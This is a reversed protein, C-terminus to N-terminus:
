RFGASVRYYVVDGRRDVVALILEKDSSIAAKLDRLLDNLGLPKGESVGIVLYKAPKKGYTGREYLLFDLGLGYGRRVVYGRDRLDRYILFRVWVDPDEAILRDAAEKLGLECEEDLLKLKNESLLYLAEEGTLILLSGERFGYGRQILFSRYTRDRVVVRGDELYAVGTMLQPKSDMWAKLM